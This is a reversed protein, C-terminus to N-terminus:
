GTPSSPLFSDRAAANRTHRSRKEPRQVKRIPELLGHTRAFQVCQIVDAVGACQAILAPRRDILGNWVRRAEEYGAEGPRLLPGRVNAQFDAVGAETLTTGVGTATTVLLDGM